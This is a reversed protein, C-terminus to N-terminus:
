WTTRAPRRGHRDHRRHHDPGAALAGEHPDHDLAARRHGTPRPGAPVVAQLRGRLRGARAHRELGAQRGARREFAQHGPQRRQRREDAGDADETQPDTALRRETAAARRPANPGRPAPWPREQPRPRSPPACRLRVEAPAPYAATFAGGAVVTGGRRWGARGAPLDGISRARRAPNVASMTTTMTAAAPPNAPGATRAATPRRAATSARRRRPGSRRLM